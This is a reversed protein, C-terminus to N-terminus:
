KIKEMEAMQQNFEAEDMFLVDPLAQSAANDMANHAGSIELFRGLRQHMQTHDYNLMSHDPLQPATRMEISRDQVGIPLATLVPTEKPTDPQGRELIFTYRLGDNSSSIVQVHLETALDRLVRPDFYDSFLTPTHTTIYQNDLVGFLVVMGTEQDQVLRWRKFQPLLGWQFLITPIQATIQRARRVFHHPDVAQTIM